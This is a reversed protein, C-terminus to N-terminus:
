RDVKEDLLGALRNLKRTKYADVEHSGLIVRMQGCMIEVDAVEEAIIHALSEMTQLPPLASAAIVRKAKQLAYILEACEEVVMDIQAELGWKAMADIYLKENSAETGVVQKGGSFYYICSHCLHRKGDDDVYCGCDLYRAM